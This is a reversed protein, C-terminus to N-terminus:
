EKKRKNYFGIFYLIVQGRALISFTYFLQQVKLFTMEALSIALIPLSLDHVYM